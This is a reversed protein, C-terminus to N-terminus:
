IQKHYELKKLLNKHRLNIKVANLLWTAMDTLDIKYIQGPGSLHATGPTNACFHTERTCFTFQCRLLPEIGTCTTRRRKRLGDAEGGGECGQQVGM